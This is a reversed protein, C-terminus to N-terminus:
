NGLPGNQLIKLKKLCGQFVSTVEHKSLREGCFFRLTQNVRAETSLYIVNIQNVTLRCTM